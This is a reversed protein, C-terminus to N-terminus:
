KEESYQRPVIVGAIQSVGKELTVTHPQLTGSPAGIIQSGVTTVEVETRAANYSM